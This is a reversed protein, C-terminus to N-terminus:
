VAVYRAGLAYWRHAVARNNARHAHFDADDLQTLQLNRALADRVQTSASSFELLLENNVFRTEGAPPINFHRGRAERKPKRPPTNSPTNPGTATSPVVRDHAPGACRGSALGGSGARLRADLSLSRQADVRPGTDGYWDDAFSSRLRDIRHCVLRAAHNSARADNHNASESQKAASRNITRIRAGARWRCDCGGAIRAEAFGRM